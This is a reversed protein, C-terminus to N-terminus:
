SCLVCNSHCLINSACCFADMFSKFAIHKLKAITVVTVVLVGVDDGVVGDIDMVGVVGDIDMVGVVGDIDVVGVVGDVDVVGVVEVVGDVDVLVDLKVALLINLVVVVDIYEGNIIVPYQLYLLAIGEFNIPEAYAPSHNPWVPGQLHLLPM